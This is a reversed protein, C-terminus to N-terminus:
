GRGARTWLCECGIYSLGKGWGMLRTSASKVEMMTEADDEKDVREDGSSEPDAELKLKRPKRKKGCRYDNRAM